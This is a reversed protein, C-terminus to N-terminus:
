RRMEESIQDCHGVGKTRRMGVHRSFTLITSRGELNKLMIETMML